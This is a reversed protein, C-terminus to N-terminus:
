GTSPSCPRAPAPLARHRRRRQVERRQHRVGAHGGPRRRVGRPQAGAPARRRPPRGRRRPARVQQDRRRRRLRAHRDEGAAVRRRVRADDRVAVRRRLRRDGADGQGIGPTEVIVLDYGAAKCAAISESLGAPIEGTTTAPPWRASTRGAATAPLEDPHPRRAARRRGQAADPRGRAGRDAAQGAPRPPVPPDARRDAVVQGLRRHRHHRAGARARKGAAETCHEALLRRAASRGRAATISRALARARRRCLLEDLSPREAPAPRRRLGRDDHQDHGAPGLESATRPRSSGPSAARTCCTSRRAARHRRWRRRLGQHARRRARAAARGPLLLVRRARGPLCSIAVGQVDEQIAATVVEDVSRNHGLHVVEAGQSQLIRRMINIAADHGDFLSAATVFRVPHAPRYLESSM